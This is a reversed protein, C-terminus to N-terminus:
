PAHPLNLTHPTTVGDEGVAVGEGLVVMAKQKIRMNARVIRRDNKRMLWRPASPQQHMARFDITPSCFNALSTIHDNRKHEIELVAKGLHLKSQAASLRM